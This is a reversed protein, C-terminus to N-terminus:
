WSEGGRDRNGAKAEIAVNVGQFCPNPYEFAVLPDTWTYNLQRSKKLRLRGVPPLAYPIGYFKSIKISNFTDLIGRVPGSKTDIIPDSSSVKRREKECRVLSPILLRVFLNMSIVSTISIAM